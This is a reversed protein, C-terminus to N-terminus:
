GLVPPLRCVHCPHPSGPRVFPLTCLSPSLPRLQAWMGAGHEENPVECGMPFSFARRAPLFAAPSQNDSLPLQLLALSSWHARVQPSLSSAGRPPAAGPSGPLHRGPSPDQAGARPGLPSTGQSGGPSPAPSSRHWPL